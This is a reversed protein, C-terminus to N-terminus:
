GIAVALRPENRRLSSLSVELERADGNTSIEKVQDAAGFGQLFGQAAEQYISPGREVFLVVQASAAPALTCYLLTCAILRRLEAWSRWRPTVGAVRLRPRESEPIEVVM